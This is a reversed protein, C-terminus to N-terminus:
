GGIFKTGDENLNKTYEQPNQEFKEPCGACGFGYVKSEYTVTKTDTSVPGGCVPCEKNWSINDVPTDDVVAMEQESHKPTDQQAKSCANFVLFLSLLITVLHFTSKTFM